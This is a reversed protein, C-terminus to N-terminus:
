KYMLFYFTYDRSINLKFKEINEKQYYMLKFGIVFFTLSFVYVIYNEIGLLTIFTDIVM